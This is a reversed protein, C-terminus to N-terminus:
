NSKKGAIPAGVIASVSIMLLFLGIADALQSIGVLKVLVISALAILPASPFSINGIITKNM